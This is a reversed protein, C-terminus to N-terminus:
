RKKSTDLEGTSNSRRSWSSYDSDDNSELENACRKKCKHSHKCFAKKLKAHFIQVFNAGKSGTEKSNPKGAGGNKKILSGNKIFCRCDCTNHSEQPGGHKKCLICHKKMWCVKKPKKFIHSDMSEMKRKGDTGKSKIISPPKADLEANNEINKLVLILARTGIPTTNETLDDQMQWKVLCMPLLHTVLDADDLPLVQTMAQNAEPSYYLCPFPLMELYSNLQEVQVFFQCISVWNPKKLMNTINYKLTEGVDYWFSAPPSIHHVQLLLGLDQYSNQCSHSWLCRGLSCSDSPGLYKGRPHRAKNSLLNGYM